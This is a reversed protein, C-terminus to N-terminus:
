DSAAHSRSHRSNTTQRRPNHVHTRAHARSPPGRPSRWSPHPRRHRHAGQWRGPPVHPSSTPQVDTTSLTVVGIVPLVFRKKSTGRPIACSSSPTLIRTKASQKNWDPPELKADSINNRYPAIYECASSRWSYQRSTAYPNRWPLGM